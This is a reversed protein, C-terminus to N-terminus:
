AVSTKDSMVVQRALREYAAAVRPWAHRRGMRRAEEAAARLQEPQTLLSAIAAAMAEDDRQPVVLGAGTRLLEVAHPFRTAVVPLGAAIVDVLVGSTVQESNDYPLLALDASRVLRELEGATMYGDEITVSGELGLSDVLDVLQERYHEGEQRKVNPHTTGRIVLRPPPELSQLRAMARIGWELGKGPGILGWNVVTPRRGTDVANLKRPMLTAGHPVVHLKEGAVDYVEILRDAAQESMVVLLESSAGLGEIIHRQRPTPTTAVTHLTTAVPLPSAGCLSLVEVGDDPGFIGFEHQIWLLDFGNCWTSIRGAWGTSDVRAQAVVEAAAAGDDDWAQLLRLVGNDLIGGRIEGLAKLM